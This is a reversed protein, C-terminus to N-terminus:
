LVNEEEADTLVRAWVVRDLRLTRADGRPLCQVVVQHGEVEIPAVTLQGTKGKASTYAMRVLWEEDSAQDLMARVAVAEGAIDTPRAVEAGYTGCARESGGIEDDDDPEVEPDPEAVLCVQRLRALVPPRGGAPRGPAPRPGQRLRSVVAPVEPPPGPPRSRGLSPPVPARLPESRALLLSGDPQERAPLYGATQLTETVTAPDADSVLVTPALQRLGLCNTRRARLVEALLSPDEARVYCTATGVRLHGHRRGLDAVLYALPQPVGKAGHSELFAVLDEASLGADFARRLSADSFRYVTAGGSSEVDAMLALERRVPAALEGSVVATLDAQLLVESSVAPAWRALGDAAEELRGAVALRGPESLSGLAGLGLLEIEELIWEVLQDPMAPGDTWLGPAEWLVWQCLSAPSASHDRGVGALARLVARRRAVAEPEHGMLLPPVPKGDSGVAGALGVHVEAGLWAQVLAAWRRAAPRAAWGDFAPLPLALGASPAALGTCAALEVLRAADVESRGTAKAARRVERRGLGGAKLVKPPVDGWQDLVTAVDGVLRLAQEAAAREVTEPAVGSAAVEPPRLRLSPFPCGGRLSLGVERPMVLTDWNLQVLLGRNTLWGQATRDAMHSGYPGFAVPPGGGLQRALDAAGSPAAEVLRRVRAPDALLEVISTLNATKTPRTGLGLRGAMAALVAPPHAGLLTRAPPGLGAPHRLQALVPLLALEDGRRLLLARHELGRLPRELEGADLAPGASPSLLGALRDTTTPQDLLCLTELVQFCGLDLSALCHRVSSWSSARAALEALDSPPPSALDPRRVFLAELQQDDWQALAVALADAASIDVVVQRASNARAM